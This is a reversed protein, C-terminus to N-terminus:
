GEGEDEGEGPAVDEGAAEAENEARIEDTDELMTRRAARDERDEQNRDEDPEVETLATDYYERVADVIDRRIGVFYVVDYDVFNRIESELGEREPESAVVVLHTHNEIELPIIANRVLFDLPFEHLLHTEFFHDAVDYSPVHYYASLAALMDDANVLGRDLLFSDFEDISSTAFTKQWEQTKELTTINHHILVQSLVDIFSKTSAM